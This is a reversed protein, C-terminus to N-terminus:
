LVAIDGEPAVVSGGEPVPAHQAALSKLLVDEKEKEEAKGSFRLDAKLEAGAIVHSGPPTKTGSRLVAGNEIISYAGIVCGPEITVGSGITVGRCIISDVATTDAGATVGDHLVCGDFVSREHVRCYEGMIAGSEDIHASYGRIKGHAADFCARRYADFGGIDCWYGAGEIGCIKDGRSLMYPFLNHGFDYKARPIMGVARRSLIYIGSNIVATYGEFSTPKEIFGTIRGCVRGDSFIEGSNSDDKDNDESITVVGYNWPEDSRALLLTAEAGARRHYSLAEGIDFDCVADGSLVVLENFDRIVDAAARVSGATGLPSTEVSYLLRVGNYYEGYFDEIQEHMYRTTVIAYKIGAARLMNLSATMARERGIPLLPKPITDTIPRLRSGNGGAMIVAVTKYQRMGNIIFFRAFSPLECM